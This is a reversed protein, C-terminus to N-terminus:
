LKQKLELISQQISGIYKAASFNNIKEEKQENTAKGPIDSPLRSTYEHTSMYELVQTTM